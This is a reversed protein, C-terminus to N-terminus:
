NEIDIQNTCIVDAANITFFIDSSFIQINYELAVSGQSRQPQTHIMVTSKDVTLLFSRYVLHSLLDANWKLRVKTIRRIGRLDRNDPVRYSESIKSNGEGLIFGM